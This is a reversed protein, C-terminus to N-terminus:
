VVKQWVKIGLRNKLQQRWRLFFLISRFLEDGVMIMWVDVITLENKFIFLIPVVIFWLSFISIFVFKTDKMAYLSSILNVNIARFPELFITILLMSAIYMAISDNLHYFAVLHDHLLYLLLSLMVSVVCNVKISKSVIPVVEEVKNAGLRQGLLIQTAQGITITFLFIFESWTQVYTKAKLQELGWSLVVWSLFLQFIMYSFQEAATPAGLRFIEKVNSSHIYKVKLQVIDSKLIFYGYVFFPILYSVGTMIAVVLMINHVSEFLFLSSINGIFNVITSIILTVIIVRRMQVNRLYVLFVSNIGQIPISFALIMFFENGLDVLSDDLGMTLLIEESFIILGVSLVIAVCLVFAMGSAMMQSMKLYNREGYYYSFLINTGLVAISVFIFSLAMIQNILGVTAVADNSVKGLVLIDINGQLVRFVQEIFIISALSFLTIKRNHSM